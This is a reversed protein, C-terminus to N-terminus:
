GTARTEPLGAPLGAEWIMMLGKSGTEVLWAHADQAAQAAAPHDRGVLMAYTARVLALDFELAIPTFLQILRDFLGAAAPLDGSLAARTGDVYLRLGDALQGSLTSAELASRVLEVQDLRRSWAAAQAAQYLGAATNTQDIQMGLEFAEEWRGELGYVQCKFQDIGARLQPDTEGDFFSLAAHARAAADPSGTRLLDIYARNSGFTAKWFDTLQDEDYLDLGAIAVDYKGDGVEHAATDATSRVMWGFDGIRGVLDNVNAAYKVADRPSDSYSVAALNNYSRGATRLFGMDEAVAAAGLFLAKAETMRRSQSLATAQTVLSELAIEALGLAAAGPLLRQVANIAEPDFTLALSRAAEAAVGIAIPDDITELGDYFPKIVMLAEVSRYNGNLLSSHTTAATREGEINGTGAYHNQAAEVYAIGREVESQAGASQAARIRFDAIEDASTSLTIARDLLSMAQLHSGLSAARTAAETLARLAESALEDRESGAPSANYAGMYHSAVVGALEPDEFTEFYAAAALHKDRRDQRALRQYAIEHILPQVFRYQGREPSRPDEEIDLIELQVLGRLHMDLGGGDGPQLATIGALSFAQGLIAADQLLSRQAPDLRDIRAGIVAQLSEPLAFSHAEENFVYGTAQEQLQGTATLMRVMEVAYLPFGASREVLRAIVDDDIGPLYEGVMRRMDSDTLPALRLAMSSRHQSGWTPFRDILDPRALTIVLLPSRTSREVLEVIFDILGSDAWHLDEFVLVTTGRTAINLFFSRLASFLEARGGPPMEALGLLGELRPEIWRRDEESPVFEAVCTRLRTRARAADEGEIIGARRRVMEGLAWFAVGDGYSPSRGQHWYVDDTFGDLHNKFEEALRTKGIGGEGVISVLRARQESEVASLQDKLLRMERERGVFPPHRLEGDAKGGVMGGIRLAKWAAVLDEKGKVERHGMAEYQIAHDTVSHTTEGVFVTGPDAISQLRAATNVLDGVVMGEKNGGPGVVAAGSNVGARLTLEEDNLEYSLSGVMDVLELAARVAREADDERAGTAGWLGMVADGIFKDVTGGFREIIERSREFYSTLMDRVDESDRQETYTTYGVLDAFLVSVFPKEAFAPTAEPEAPSSSSTEGSRAEGLLRGCGGCFKDGPDNETGCNPCAPALASGCERCFRRDERNDAACVPCNM